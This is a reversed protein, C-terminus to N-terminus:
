GARAVECEHDHRMKADCAGCRPASPGRDRDLGTARDGSRTRQGGRRESRGRAGELLRAGGGAMGGRLRACRLVLQEAAARVRQECTRMADRYRLHKAVYWKLVREARIHAKVVRLKQRSRSHQAPTYLIPKRRRTTPPLHLRARSRKGLGVLAFEERTALMQSASAVLSHPTRAHRYPCLLSRCGQSEGFCSPHSMAARTNRQVMARRM